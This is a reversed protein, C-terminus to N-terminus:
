PIERPNTSSQHHNMSLFHPLVPIMPIIDYWIIVPIIMGIPSYVTIDRIVSQIPIIGNWYWVVVMFCGRLIDGFGIPHGLPKGAEDALETHQRLNHQVKKKEATRLEFFGANLRNLGKYTEVEEILFDPKM